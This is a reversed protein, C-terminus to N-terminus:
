ENLNWNYTLYEIKANQNVQVKSYKNIFDILTQNKSKFDIAYWEFIKSIQIKKEKIINASLDNIFIKTMRTLDNDLTKADYAKNMLRPCSSAACNIAFHIRADGYGRLIDNELQTLTISKAGIKVLKLNWIDKGSYNIDKPSKVPYKTIIFQVTYANYMNIYYAMKENKSWDTGPTNNKLETLYESISNKNIKLNKYNVKGTSSINEKLLTNWISHSARPSASFGTFLSLTLILTILTKMIYNKTQANFNLNRELSLLL